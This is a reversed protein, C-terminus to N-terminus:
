PGTNKPIQVDDGTKHGSFLAAALTSIDSRLRNFSRRNRYDLRTTLLIVYLDKEPDIWVSSGSYGTHGYSFETFLAGKPASFPSERDWGLGRVISGNRFYYPATMQAVARASLVRRGDLEGENLLMRAFRALDEATSFLGAHGAVGGLLRANPDQAVGNLVGNRGGLTAATNLKAAPNFGTHLMGLPRYFSDQCYGDLGFATIRRVLNGLLIFNIDAYLFRTGAPVAGAQAAARSIASELPAEPDLMGDHLGSTHTLLHLVTINKGEFEPFWRSLPDLLSLTGQDMLRIIAPTTAFVKTLSAVDFVTGTTLPPSAAEFGARGAAHTYLAGNRNGILVVAGSILGRRVANQLMTDLVATRGLEQLPDQEAAARAVAPTPLSSIILVLLGATLRLFFGGLLRSSTIRHMKM